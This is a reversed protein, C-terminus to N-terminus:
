GCRFDKSEVCRSFRFSLLLAFVHLLKAPPQKSAAVNHAFPDKWCEPCGSMVLNCGNGGCVAFVRPLEGVLVPDPAPICIPVLQQTIRFDISDIDCTRWVHM